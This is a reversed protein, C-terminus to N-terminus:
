RSPQAAVDGTFEIGKAELAARIKAGTASRSGGGKEFRSVADDSLGVRRALTEQTLGLLRRSRICQEGTIAIESDPVSKARAAIVGRVSVIVGPALPEIEKAVRSRISRVRKENYAPNRQDTVVDATVRVHLAFWESHAGSNTEFATIVGERILGNLIANVDDRVSRSGTM